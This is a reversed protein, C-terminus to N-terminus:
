ASDWPAHAMGEQGGALRRNGLSGSPHAHLLEPLQLRCTPQLLVATSTPLAQQGEGSGAAAAGLLWDVWMLAGWRLARHIAATAAQAVPSSLPATSCIAANYPWATAAVLLWTSAFLSRRSPPFHHWNAATQQRSGSVIAPELHWYLPWAKGIM